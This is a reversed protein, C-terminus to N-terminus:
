KKIILFQYISNLSSVLAILLISLVPLTYREEIGRQFYCLYILYIFTLFYLFYHSKQTTKYNFLTLFIAIFCSSHILFSVWRLTEMFFLGRYTEQFIHLSLNSHLGMKIYVKIPAVVYYTFWFKHKYANVLAKIQEVTKTEQPIPTLPIPIDKDYYDKQVLISQQYNTLVNTLRQKGFYQQVYEPFNNIIADIYIKSTDGKITNEWFPLMYSHVKSGDEAWGLPLNWFEQFTPRYISNNDAFYIPNLGVYQNTIKYNRYQWLGMLNYGITVFILSYLIKQKLHKFSLFIFIPILGIFIGLVPRIAFLIAFLIAAITLYILKTKQPQQHQAKLLFFIYFILLAPAVGETLTYFLFNSAIPFIGYIISVLLALRHNKILSFAIFYLCYVSISFLLVQLIKIVVLPHNQSIQLALYYIAGYGPPRLFYSITGQMGNKWVGTTNFNIAPRLYSNDDATTVTEHDRVLEKPLKTLNLQNFFIASIASIIVIIWISKITKM